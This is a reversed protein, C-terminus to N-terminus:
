KEGININVKKLIKALMDNFLFIDYKIQLPVVILVFVIGSVTGRVFINPISNKFFYIPLSALFCIAFNIGLKKWNVWNSISLGMVRREINVSIIMPTTVGILGTVVAGYLGYIPVLILGLIVTIIVGIVSGVLILHTKKAGRLIINHSFMAVFFLVIYIRYYNAAESYEPPYMIGIIEHAMLWFIFVSPITLSSTKEVTKQWLITAEKMRNNSLHISIEPVVVNHISKFFHSLIPISVFSVAYVAFEEAEIYKNIIFKDFTNSVVDLIIAIGFPLSYILQDKILKFDLKYLKKFYPLIHQSLFLFKVGGFITLAIIPGKFGPILLVVVLFILFRGIKELPFYVKNLVLNKELTFINEIISALLEFSIYIILYTKIGSSKDFKFYDFITDGFVSLILLVIAINVIFLFQTQQIIKQRGKTDTTPYFYYLSTSYGMGLMTIAPLAILTFQRFVGYDNQSIIRTLVVPTLLQFLTALINGIFIAKAQNKLSPNNEKM